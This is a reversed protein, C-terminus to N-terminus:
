GSYQDTVSKLSQSCPQQFVELVSFKRNICKRLTVCSSLVDDVPAVVANGPAAADDVPREADSDDLELPGPCEVRSSMVPGSASTLLHLNARM